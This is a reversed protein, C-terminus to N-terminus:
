YKSGIILSPITVSLRFPTFAFCRLNKTADSRLMVQLRPRLIVYM